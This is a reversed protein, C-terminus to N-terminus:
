KSTDVVAKGVSLSAMAQLAANVESLPYPDSFILDWEFRSAHATLFRLGAYHDAVEGSSSGILTLERTMVLQAAIPTDTPSVQGVVLHCGHRACMEVGEATATRGGSFDCVLDAGRGGTLERVAAIRDAPRPLEDVDITASAGFATAVALRAAPGGITVVQSAGSAVALATGFLGLAGAGQIVVSQGVHIGGARRLARIVTKLSCGAAGAWRAPMGEPILLRTSGPPVYCYESLGGVAYPFELAHALIGYRRRLCQTPTGLVTCEYCHGCSAEGWGIIDGIRIQRGLVDHEDSPDIAIVEGVMEHGLVIPLPLTRTALKGEWSHVDSGCLNCSVVRVLAAGPELREPLPIQEVRLPERYTHLLAARTHEPWEMPM